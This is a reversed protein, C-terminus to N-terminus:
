AVGGALLGVYAESHTVFVRGAVERHRGLVVSCSRFVTVSQVRLRREDPLFAALYVLIGLYDQAVRSLCPWDYLRGYHPRGVRPFRIGGSLM